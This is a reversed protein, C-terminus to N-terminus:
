KNNIKQNHKIIDDPKIDPDSTANKENLGELIDSIFDEFLFLSIIIMLCRLLGFYKNAVMKIAFLIIFIEM